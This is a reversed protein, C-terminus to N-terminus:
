GKIIVPLDKLGTIIGKFFYELKLYGSELTGITAQIKGCEM